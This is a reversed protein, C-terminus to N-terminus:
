VRISTFLAPMYGHALSLLALAAYQFRSSCHFISAADLAGNVGSRGKAAQIASACINGLSVSSVEAIPNHNGSTSIPNGNRISSAVWGTGKANLSCIYKDIFFGPQEVGGDIFARHLAYGAANAAATNAFSAGGKIDVVNVSLGNSGTGVKYYFKPIWCMVSGDEYQYNGYNAHSRTDCGSLPDFGSPLLSPPCIGVGFGVGGPIGIDNEPTSIYGLDVWATSDRNYFQIQGDDTMVLGRDGEVLGPILNLEELSQTWYFKAM